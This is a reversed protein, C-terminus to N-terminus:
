ARWALPRTALLVARRPAPLGEITLASDDPDLGAALSEFPMWDTSRQEDVGTVSEDVVRIEDFGCRRLWVALEVSSPVFWVNRMRAYRGPPVLVRGAGGDIVLSELCLEGGPRLLGFLHQLHEIPSKRHYLVGMSLITDFRGLDAPVAEIGIPLIGIDARELYGQVAAFQLNFLVSPEIGVVLAPAQALMRWAYYGNGCGVDLVRRGALPALQPAVRDWKLNSRWEADVTVGAFCFPGKRWPGLGRLGAELERPAACRGDLTVAALDFRAEVGAIRPLRDLAARWRPYDGHGSFWTARVADLEDAWAGFGHARLSDIFDVSM